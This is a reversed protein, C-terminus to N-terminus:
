GAPEPALPTGVEILDSFWQLSADAQVQRQLLRWSEGEQQRQLYIEFTNQKQHLTQRPLTLTIDYKGRLHYAALNNIVIPEITNVNVQDIAVQPPVTQLNQSLQNQSQQLQYAIAAEVVAGPPAFELPAPSPQCATLGGLMLALGCWCIIRSLLRAM